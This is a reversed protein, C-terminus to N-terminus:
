RYAGFAAGQLADVQEQSLEIAETLESEFLHVIENIKGAAKKIGEKTGQITVKVMPEDNGSKDIDISTDTDLRINSITEGGKGVIRSLSDSPVSLEISHNHDLLHQYFGLLEAKAAELNNKPGIIVVTNNSVDEAAPFNLRVQYKRDLHKVNKGGKGIMLFHMSHDLEVSVSGQNELVKLRDIIAVKTEEVLRKLGQIHLIPTKKGSQLEIKVDNERALGHVWRSLEGTKKADSVLKVQDATLDITVTYGCMIADHKLADIEDKLQAQAAKVESQRGKIVVNDEEFFMAISPYKELYKQLNSGGKGILLRHYKQDVRLEVALFDALSTVLTNLREKANKILADEPAAILLSSTDESGHPIIVYAGCESELQQLNQGKKGIIHKFYKSDVSFGTDFKWKM